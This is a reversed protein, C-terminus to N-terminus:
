LYERNKFTIINVQENGSLDADQLLQTLIDITESKYKEDKFLIKMPVAKSKQVPHLTKRPPILKSLGQLDQFTEVMFRMLYEVAHELIISADAETPLFDTTQLSSRPKQPTNDSWSFPFDPLYRINIALRSTLNTMTSHHETHTLLLARM